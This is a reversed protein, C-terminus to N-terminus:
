CRSLSISIKKVGLGSPLIKLSQKCRSSKVRMAASFTQGKVSLVFGQSSVRGSVTGENNNKTEVWTGNLQNGSVALRSKAFIKYSASTTCRLNQELTKGGDKLFYTAICKIKEVEGGDFQVQGWGTWRGPLNQLPAATAVGAYTMAALVALIVSYRSARVRRVKHFFGVGDFAYTKFGTRM